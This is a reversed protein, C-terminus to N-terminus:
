EWGNRESSCTWTMCVSLDKYITGLPRHDQNDDEVLDDPIIRNLIAEITDQHSSTFTGDMETVTTEPHKCKVKKAAIKYITGWPNSGLDKEVFRNWSKSKAEKIAM